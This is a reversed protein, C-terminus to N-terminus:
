ESRDHHFLNSRADVLSFRGLRHFYTLHTHHIHLQLLSVLEVIPVHQKVGIVVKGESLIEFRSDAFAILVDDRFHERIDASKKENWWKLRM